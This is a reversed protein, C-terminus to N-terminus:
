PLQFWSTPTIGTPPAPITMSSLGGGSTAVFLTNGSVVPASPTGSGIIASQQGTGTSTQSAGLVSVGASNAVVEGGGNTYNLAYLQAYGESCSNATQNPTYTTFYIIGNSVVPSSVVKEGPNPLTIYWGDPNIAANASSLSVANGNLTYSYSISSPSSTSSSATIYAGTVNELGTTSSGTALTYPATSQPSSTTCTGAPATGMNVALFENPRPSTQNPVFENLNARNGTGFYVWLNGSSDYSIAPPYFINLLPNAGPQTFIPCATWTSSSKVTESAISPMSFAYMEGGLDGVYFAELEGSPVSSGGSTNFVPAVESPVPYNMPFKWLTQEDAYTTGGTPYIEPNPEVYLAYIANGPSGTSSYGGGVIALYTKVYQPASSPNNSCVGNKPSNGSNPLCIFGIVPRSWTQAMSSDTFDWLPAPYTGASLQSPHTMDLAFYYSGGSREGSVLVTHWGSSVGSVANSTGDFINNFYVDSAAPTSDVFFDQPYDGSSPQTLSGQYWNSVEPLLDPPIYGFMEEGSGYGYTTSTSGDASGGYVGADFGHLMGDNAGAALVQQRHEECLYFQYYSGTYTNSCSTALPSSSSPTEYIAISPVGILVPDSHYIAGLKWGDQSPNLVFNLISETCSDATSSPGCISSYNSSTGLMTQLESNSDASTAPSSSTTTLSITTEQGTSSNFYSTFVDRNPSSPNSYYNGNKLADGAGLGSPTDWFSDYSSAGVSPPILSTVTVTQGNITETNQTEVCAFSSSGPGGVPGVLGDSLGSNIPCGTTSNSITIGPNDLQFLYINGEGWLPQTLTAEFDAYYLYKNAGTTTQHIVPTTYSGSAMIEQVIIGLDNAIDGPTTAPFFNNTGGAVAMAKLTNAAQPNLSPEVGAGMGIVYTDIGQAKLDAIENITEQLATDNTKALSGDTNFTATVGYGAAAVSGIPPWNSGNQDYTPLGDTVFIVYKQGPCSPTPLSSGTLYSLASALTGAMPANVADAKIEASTTTNTEPALATTFNSQQASNSAAIPIVLNGNGTVSNYYGFGRESYWVQPSYPVYGANTPGTDFNGNGINPYTEKYCSNIQGQNYNTLNYFTYINSIFSSGCQYPTYNYVGANTVFNTPIGSAYLVDNITSEDSTDQIYLYPDSFVGHGSGLFTRIDICSQTAQTNSYHCPNYVYTLGGGPTKSTGFTFGGSGSMYYVWTTYLTPTNGSPNSPNNSADNVGYDMLGFQVNNSYKKYTDLIAAKAVNLRSASNDTCVGGSSCVTYPATVPVIDSGVTNTVPATFGGPVSYNIPSSSSQDVFGDSSTNSTATGSGTMIAGSLDGDMSQSNDLIILVQPTKYQIGAYSTIVWRSLIFIFAIITVFIYFILLRFNIKANM